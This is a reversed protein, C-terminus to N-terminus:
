VTVDGEDCSEDEGDGSDSMKYLGMADVALRELKKAIVFTGSTQVDEPREVFQKIAKCWGDISMVGAPHGGLLVGFVHPMAEYQEWVM